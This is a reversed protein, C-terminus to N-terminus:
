EEENVEFRGLLFVQIYAKYFPLRDTVIRRLGDGTGLLGMATALWLGTESDPFKDLLDIYPQVMQSMKEPSFLVNLYVWSALIGLVMEKEPPTNEYASRLKEAWDSVLERNM